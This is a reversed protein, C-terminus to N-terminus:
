GRLVRRHSKLVEQIASPGGVVIMETGTSGRDIILKSFRHNKDLGESLLGEQNLNRFSQEERIMIVHEPNIYVERLSYKQPWSGSAGTGCVETLKVLM